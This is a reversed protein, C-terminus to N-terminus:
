LLRSPPDLVDALSTVAKLEDPTMNALKAVATALVRAEAKRAAKLTVCWWM